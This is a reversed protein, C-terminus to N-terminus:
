RGKWSARKSTRLAQLEEIRDAIMAEEVAALYRKPIVAWGFLDAILNLLRIDHTAAILGVFRILNISHESRAESAYADLMAKSCPEGLYEGIEGAIEDRERDTDKLALAVGRSIASRLNAAQVKVTDFTRSIPPPAYDTFMDLTRRDKTM